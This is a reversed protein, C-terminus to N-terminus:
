KHNPPNKLARSSKGFSYGIFGGFITINLIRIIQSTNKDLPIGRSDHDDHQSRHSKGESFIYEGGKGRPSFGPCFM